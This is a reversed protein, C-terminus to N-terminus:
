NGLFVFAGWYIPEPFKEKLSLQAKNFAELKNMGGLWNDYFSNIMIQTTTDNVKWLSMILSKAGAVIFARQLGYVGEGNKIEGLGTECASLVVLETNDLNLNMAEYATLIGDEEGITNKQGLITENAGSLLLGSRFLPNTNVNKMHIGFATGDDKPKIDSMFFGHTAIHLLRPNKMDKFSAESANKLTQIQSTWGNEKLTIGLKDIEIKTGPLQPVGKSGFGYNAARSLEALSASSSGFDPNGFILALNGDPSYTSNRYEKIEKTNSVLRVQYRDIVYKEEHFDWLTNFSIKNFIGDTSLFITQAGELISEMPEWYTKYSREDGVDFKIANRYYNFSRAEMESGNRFVVLTPSDSNNKLILAAYYISDGAYKKINRIIEISAEGERLSEKIESWTIKLEEQEKAFFTSSATLQKEIENIENEKVEIDINESELEEVTFAYYKVLQEKKGLWLNFNEILKEDNSNLIRQRVKNSSNLLMAKTSLQLDYLLRLIEANGKLAQEVAFDKFSEFVPNIKDLFASKEIESFSPFYNQIQELYKTVCQYYYLQAEPKQLVRYISAVGYLSYAYDPHEQGLLKERLNLVQVYLKEADEFRQIDQYLTALNYLTSAYSPHNEGYTNKDIELAQLFLPLSEEYRDSEKYVSALNHLTTSYLPHKDGLLEKDIALAEELLKTAEQNKGQMQFMTALNELTTAYEISKVGITKKYIERAEVFLPTAEDFNGLTQYFFALSNLAGAYNPHDSGITSKFIDVVEKFIPEAKVYEGTAMYLRGMNQLSIAYSPNNKGLAQEKIQISQSINSRATNYDGLEVNLMGLNESTNAYSLGTKGNGSALITLSEEFLRKATLLEGNVKNLSAYNNLLTPYIADKKNADSLAIKYLSDAPSYEGTEHYLSALGNQIEVYRDFSKDLGKLSKVYLAESADFDRKQKLLFAKKSLSNFYKSDSEGLLESHIKLAEEQYELAKDIDGITQLLTALNESIEAYRLADKQESKNLSNLAQVYYEAAKSYDGKNFSLVALNNLSTASNSDESASGGLLAEAEDNRGLAQLNVARNNAAQQYEKSDKGINKEFSDMSKAYYSEANDRNGMGSEVTGYMFLVQSYMTEGTLESGELIGILNDLYTKTQAYKEVDILLSTYDFAAQVYDMTIDESDGFDAFGEEFWKTAEEGNNLYYNASGIKWKLNIIDASGPASIKFNEVAEKFIPLAKEYEDLMFYSYGLNFLTLGYRSDTTEGIAELVKREVQIIRM